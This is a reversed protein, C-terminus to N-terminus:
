CGTAALIQIDEPAIARLDVRDVSEVDARETRDAAGCDRDARGDVDTVVRRKAEKTANM